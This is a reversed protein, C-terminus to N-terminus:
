LQVYYLNFFYVSLRDKHDISILGVFFILRVETYEADSIFVCIKRFFYDNASVVQLYVVLCIENRITGLKYELFGMKQLHLNQALHMVAM